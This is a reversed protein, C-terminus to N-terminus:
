KKKMKKLEEGYIRRFDKRVGVRRMVEDSEREAESLIEVAEKGLAMGCNGCFVSTWPNMNRCRKCEIAKMPTDPKETKLGRMRANWDAVDKDSVHSYRSYMRSGKSWGYKKEAVPAPMGFVADRTAASHRFLKPNIKKTIGARKVINRLNLYFQMYQLQKGDKVTFLFAQQNKGQPHMSLWGKLDPVSDFLYVRREKTKSERINILVSNESFVLDKIRLSLIEGIRAGTEYLLQLIARNRPTRSFSLMKQFEDPTICDEPEIDKVQPRKAKIWEVLNPKKFFKYFQKTVMMRYAQTAPTSKVNVFFDSIDGKRATFFSKHDKGVLHRSLFYLQETYSRISSERLGRGVCYEKRFREVEKRMRPTFRGLLNKYM